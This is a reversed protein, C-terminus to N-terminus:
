PSANLHAALERHRLAEDRRGKANLAISLNMHIRAEMEKTESSLQSPSALAGRYQTIAENIRGARHMLKALNFHATRFNPTEAIAKKLCEIAKDTDGIELYAASLRVFSFANNRFQRGDIPALVLLAAAGLVVTGVGIQRWKHAQVMRGTEAVAVVALLILIPIVPMRYRATCFFMVVTVMYLIVFSTLYFLEARRRMCLFLGLIGLPAIVGFGIPLFRVIPTFQETWFHIGKNNSIEEKTWFFRFKLWVLKLFQLPRDTIFRTAAEFYHTSVESPKLQRGEAKEALEISAYYGEWWGGPTGPVIATRGDSKPNNGIFFNVGGQSSVLVLDNGVVYNRVTIPLIVLACGLSMFLVYMSARRMAPRHVVLPSLALVPALLLLNPRAIISLGMVIGAVAYLTNSPTRIGRLLLWILVLDLFIILTPILLEADFYVLMWYCAAIAGAVAGVRRGFVRRGILFLLGCSLAGLIAQIIRPALYGGGCLWRVGALFAPYLPARFYPGDIFREGSVIAQAWQVHYLEDMVPHDFLPSATMQAIYVARVALAFLVIALLVYADREEFGPAADSDCKDPDGSSRLFPRRTRRRRRSRSFAMRRNYCFGVTLPAAFFLSNRGFGPLM